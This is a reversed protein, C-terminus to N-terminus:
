ANSVCVGAGQPSSLARRRPWATLAAAAFGALGVLTCAMLSQAVGQLAWGRLALGGGVAVLTGLLAPTVVRLAQSGSWGALAAAHRWLLACSLANGLLTGAAVAGAGFAQAGLVSVLVNLVSGAVLPWAAHWPSRAGLTLMSAALEHLAAIVAAGGLLALALASEERAAVPGAWAQLLPAGCLALAAMGAGVLGGLLPTGLALVALREQPCGLRSLMAASAQKALTFAQDVARAAVGYAAVGALPAVSALILTDFRLAAVVAVNIALAAGGEGLAGRCLAWGGWGPRWSLARDTGRAAHATLWAELVNALLLAAAPVLLSPWLWLGLATGGVQALSAALRARTLAAMSGRVLALSRWPLVTAGALGAALALLTATRASDASAGAGLGAGLDVFLCVALAAAPGVSAISLLSLALLRRAREGDGRAAARAIATSLGLECLGLIFSLSGLLAWVGLAEDGLARGVLPLTLLGALAGALHRAVALLLSAVVSPGRAVPTTPSATRSSVCPQAGDSLRTRLGGGPRAGEATRQTEMTASAEALELKM